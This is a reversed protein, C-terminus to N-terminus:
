KCYESRKRRQHQHIKPLRLKRRLKKILKLRKLPKIAPLKLPLQTLRPV